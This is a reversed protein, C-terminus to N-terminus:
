SNSYCMELMARLRAQVDPPIRENPSQKFLDVTKELSELCRRCKPSSELHARIEECTKENAEGDMFESLKELCDQCDEHM